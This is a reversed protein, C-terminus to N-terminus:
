PLYDNSGGDTCTFSEAAFASIANNRFSGSATNCVIGISNVSADGVLDNNRVVIASSSSSDIGYVTGTGDKLLRRIRNGIVRGDPNSDLYIGYAVGNGGVRASVGSVTNDMVDVSFQTRIGYSYAIATTGGTDLVRNRRVVSGDGSVYVGTYTNNNFRNDEVVHGGTSTVGTLAVGDIFGRINCHRITSNFHDLGHIGIMTTSLGAASGDLVFGNCDITVNNTQIDIAVGGTLATSLDQKLCWTGQSNIAAPLSTIYGTCNDYSEAAQAAGTVGLLSTSLLLVFFCFRTM